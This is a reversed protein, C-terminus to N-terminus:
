QPNRPQQQTLCHFSGGGTIIYRSALGIVQHRPFAQRLISLAAEDQPDGYQPVLVAGNVIYFNAYTPPLRLGDALELRQRPLPLDILNLPRGDKLQVRSLIEKNEELRAWNVDNKDLCVSHLVTDRSAFRTITDIHGDTHDGELGLKLWVLQDIGLYDSLAREIDSRTAGPNRKPSLLCQETTLCLGEGNVELSGGEMVMSNEFFPLDLWSAIAAPAKNDLASEYKDGWANFEWNVMSVPPLISSGGHPRQEAARTVFIPGNDRLWVDDLPLDHLTLQSPSVGQLAERASSRAEADRLLLHVPEFRSITKVLETYEARVEALKGHWMEEDFPWSMWTASHPHWEAPMRYGLARPLDSLIHTM